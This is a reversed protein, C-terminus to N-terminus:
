GLGCGDQELNTWAGLSFVTPFSFFIGYGALSGAWRDFEPTTSEECNSVAM